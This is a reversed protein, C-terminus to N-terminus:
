PEQLSNKSRGEKGVWQRSQGFSTATICCSERGVIDVREVTGVHEHSRKLAVLVSDCVGAHVVTVPGMGTVNVLHVFNQALIENVHVLPRQQLFQSIKPKCLIWTQLQRWNRLDSFSEVQILHHVTFVKETLLSPVRGSNAGHVEFSFSFLFAIFISKIVEDKSSLNSLNKNRSLIKQADSLQVQALHLNADWSTFHFISRPFIGNGCSCNM